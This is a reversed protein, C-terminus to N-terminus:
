VVVVRSVKQLRAKFNRSDGKFSETFMRLVEKFCQQFKQSVGKLSLVGNFSKSM